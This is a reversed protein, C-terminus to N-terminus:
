WGFLGRVQELSMGDEIAPHAYLSYTAEDLSDLRYHWVTGGSREQRLSCGPLTDWEVCMIGREAHSAGYLIHLAEHIATERLYARPPRAGYTTAERLEIEGSRHHGCGM